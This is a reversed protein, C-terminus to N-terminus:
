LKTNVYENLTKVNWTIKSDGRYKMGRKTKTTKVYVMTAICMQPTFLKPFGKDPIFLNIYVKYLQYIWKQKTVFLRTMNQMDFKPKVEVYSEANTEGDRLILHAIFLPCGYKTPENLTYFIGDAKNTWIIHADTTYESAELMVSEKREMRHPEKKTPKAKNWIYSIEDSLRFAPPQMTFDKVYGEARLEELFWMFYKEEDSDLKVELSEM